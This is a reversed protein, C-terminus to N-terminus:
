NDNMIWPKYVKESSVANMKNNCNSDWKWNKNTSYYAFGGKDIVERIELSLINTLNLILEDEDKETRISVDSAFHELQEGIYINIVNKVLIIKIPLKDLKPDILEIVIDDKEFFISILNVHSIKKLFSTVIFSLKKDVKDNYSLDFKM